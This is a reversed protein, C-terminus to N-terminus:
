SVNEVIWQVEHQGEKRQSTGSAPISGAVKLNLIQRGSGASDEAAKHCGSEFSGTRIGVTRIVARVKTCHPVAPSHWAGRATSAAPNSGATEEEPPLRRTRQAMRAHTLDHAGAPSDFGEVVQIRM